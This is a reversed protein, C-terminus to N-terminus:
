SECQPKPVSFVQRQISKTVQVGGVNYTMTGTNGDTFNFSMTGVQFPTIPTWPAANFAPGTTRFLAGSFSAGAGKVGESMVYWMPQGNADYTFLTAFLTDDQHTLNVGWGSENPNWWLDQFNSAWSRDFASWTCTPLSRFAQRTIAKTVTVNNFTYTLTAAEPSAFALRMTGVEQPTVPTWPSANFAPGTARYLPGLYSGDVQREGRPLVLWVPTGNANYTFLTAFVINGQHNVNIGWGSEAANWWLATYNDGVRDARLRLEYPGTANVPPGDGRIWNAVHFYYTGPNVQYTIGTNTTSREADDVALLAIGNSDLLTGVTDQGGRTYASVYSPQAITFKYVDVDGLYDIRQNPLVVEATTDLPVASVTATVDQPRNPADDTVLSAAGIFQAIQPQFVDMRGYLTFLTPETCSLDTAGQSLIGRLELGNAGRTFLGSGSSGPEIIGREFNVVYMDYPRENDRLVPQSGNVAGTAWRSTDGRPHSISVIPTNGGMLAQNVPSYTAGAPPTNNYRVLTADVNFDTSVLQFGGTRQVRQSSVTTGGCTAAEYFWSSAISQASLADDICHNATLVFAAPRMPTDILTASCNFGGGGSVFQIRIVSKRREEILNDLVSDGSTCATSLTCEAAAKAFPDATFHLVSEVRVADPSPLVPSFIELVQTEGETWPTWPAPGDLPDIVMTEVQTPDTGQARLEMAGPVTGLALKVRLGLAEQSTARLRAVYGGSVKTWTGIAASKPLERVDGVRLRGAADVRPGTSKQAPAPLAVVEVPAVQPARFVGSAIAPFAAAAAVAALSSFVARLM